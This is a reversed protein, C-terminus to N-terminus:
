LGNQKFVELTELEYDKILEDIEKKSLDLIDGKRATNGALKQKEKEEKAGIIAIGQSHDATSSILSINSWMRGNVMFDVHDAQMGQMRRLQAYGGPLVALRVGEGRSEGSSAALYAAFGSSGKLTKWDFQSRKQKSGLFQNAYKENRFSKAGILMSKTSYPKFKAGKANIGTKIVRDRIKIYADEGIKAMINAQVRKLGTISNGWARNLEEPTVVNSISTCLRESQPM